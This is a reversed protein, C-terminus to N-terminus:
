KRPVGWWPRGTFARSILAGNVLHLPLWTALILASAAAPIM